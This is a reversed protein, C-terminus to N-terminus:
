HVKEASCSNSSYFYINFKEEKGMSKLLLFFLKAFSRAQHFVKWKIKHEIFVIELQSQTPSFNKDSFHRSFM